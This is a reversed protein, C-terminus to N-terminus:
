SRADTPLATTTRLTAVDGAVQAYADLIEIGVIRGAADFDLVIGQRVEESEVVADDAFRVYLADDQDDYVTKM